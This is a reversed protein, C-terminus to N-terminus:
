KGRNCLTTQSMSMLQYGSCVFHSIAHLLGSKQSATMQTVSGYTETPFRHFYYNCVVSHRFLIEWKRIIYQQYKQWFDLKLFFRRKRSVTYENPPLNFHKVWITNKVSRLRSDHDRWSLEGHFYKKPTAWKRFLIWKRLRIPNSIRIEWNATDVCHDPGRAWLPHFLSVSFPLLGYLNAYIKSLSSDSKLPIERPKAYTKRGIEITKSHPPRPTQCLTCGRHAVTPPFVCSRIKQAPM